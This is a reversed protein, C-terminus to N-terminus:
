YNMRSPYPDEDMEIHNQNITCFYNIYNTICDIKNFNQVQSVSKNLPYLVHVKKNSESKKLLFIFAYV